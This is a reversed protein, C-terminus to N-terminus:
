GANAAPAAANAPVPMSVVAPGFNLRAGQAKRHEDALHGYVKGILIGGDKHGVWRAITMFDVGSMVGYSIFHHRLDHFSFKQLKDPLLKARKEVRESQCHSCSAPDAGITHRQCNHCVCGAALRTLRLSEMFTKTSADQDGRQPSPFLFKSDPQRRTQMEKLHAELKPNFDVYRAERNKADGEAGITVHGREFDVDQWRVRLAESRRAGSYQLFRLYDTFPRGNKSAALAIECLRDVEDPSILQRSKKDVRQWDLGEFPLPPKVYADRLAGKFLGRIAILYLNVSRGAYGDGALETLVQSLHHPRIKNLRIHGIKKTWHNLYTTEKEVSSARKGSVKLRQTHVAVYDALMPTLGLPRLRDDARETQLRAYDAKVEDLMAGSLPVMRSTKRGLDDAVTLNGFHRGNRQWMGRVRRKRSDFDKRYTDRSLKRPKATAQM